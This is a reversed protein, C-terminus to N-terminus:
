VFDINIKERALIPSRRYDGSFEYTIFEDVNYPIIYDYSYRGIGMRGGRGLPISEIAVNDKGYINLHVEEPEIEKGNVDLFEVELRITDGKLAM